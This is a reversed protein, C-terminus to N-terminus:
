ILKNKNAINADAKSYLFQANKDNSTNKSSLPHRHANDLTKIIALNNKSFCFVLVVIPKLCYAPSSV